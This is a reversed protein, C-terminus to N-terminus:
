QYIGRRRCEAQVQRALDFDPHITQRMEPRRAGAQFDAIERRIIASTKLVNAGYAAQQVLLAAALVLVAPLAYRRWMSWREAAVPALRCILGMQFASMFVAYRVPVIVAATQNVRGVAAMVATFLAFAMLDLGIRELRGAAGTRAAGRWILAAGLTITGAGILLRVRSLAGIASWPLGAYALLYQAMKVASPAGGAPAGAPGEALLGALVVAGVAFGVILVPAALRRQVPNRLGSLVLAPFVAVGAASGGVAALGAAMALGALVAGQGPAADGAREFLVFAIVAFGFAIAYVVNIPQVCDLANVSTAALMATLVTAAAGVLRVNVDRWIEWGVAAAAALIALGAALTFVVASGHLAQVDLATLLRVWVLRQGNHPAALYAAWDGAQELRFEVLLFNFMDSFPQRVLGVACVTVFIALHIALLAAFAWVIPWDRAALSISATGAPPTEEDFPILADV